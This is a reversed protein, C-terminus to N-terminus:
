IIVYNKYKINNLSINRELIRIYFQEKNYVKIRVLIKDNM